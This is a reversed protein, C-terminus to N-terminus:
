SLLRGVTEILTRSSAPKTLFDNAGAARAALRDQDQGSATLMIVPLDPHKADARIAKLLTLGDMEPMALDIIALDVPHDDLQELAEYGNSVVLTQHSVRQLTASLLRQVVPSDDVIRPPETFPLLPLCSAHTPAGCDTASLAQFRQIEHRM